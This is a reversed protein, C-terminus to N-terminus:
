DRESKIELVFNILERIKKLNEEGSISFSFYGSNEKFIINAGDLDIEDGEMISMKGGHKKKIMKNRTSKYGSIDLGEIEFRKYMDKPITQLM